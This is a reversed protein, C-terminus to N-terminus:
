SSLLFYLGGGAGILRWLSLVVLVVVNVIVACAVLGPFRVLYVFLLVCFVLDLDM